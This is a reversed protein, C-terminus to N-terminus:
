LEAPAPMSHGAKVLFVSWAFEGDAASADPQAFMSMRLGNLKAIVLDKTAVPGEIRLQCLSSGCSASVLRTPAPQGTQLQTLLERAKEATAAEWSVDRPQGRLEAELHNATRAALDLNYADAAALADADAATTADHSAGHLEEDIFNERTVPADAVRVVDKGSTEPKPRANQARALQAELAAVRAVLEDRPRAAERASLGGVSFWAGLGFAAVTASGALSGALARRFRANSATV